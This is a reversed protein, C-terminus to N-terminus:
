DVDDLPGIELFFSGFLNETTLNAAPVRELSFM